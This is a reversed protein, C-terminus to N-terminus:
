FLKGPNLISRADLAQKIRRMASIEEASRSLGLWERKLTGIGHEASIAGGAKGVEAYFVQELRHILTDTLDPAHLVAHINGDGLHGFFLIRAAPHEAHVAETTTVVFSAIRPLPLSIDLNVLGPLASDLRHGERLEWFRRADELSQAPLADVLLEAEFAEELFPELAGEAELLVCLPPSADFFRRGELQSCLSVYDPWMAEFACLRLSKRALHLLEPAMEPSPLACLATEVTRPAPHLKLVARTVIGLTGESGIMLGRLDLGTNDKVATNLHSLVTGDALVMELGLVNERTTGHRVVRLGGANTAIVGGVQCSGRAGLDIPLVMGEAEAAGQAAQLVTGARLQMTGSVADVAEIGAFRELSLAIDGARPNAGGALGTMGGQPVVAQGHANCLAMAASIEEVSSPRLLAAPRSRGTGSADSIASAPVDEGVHCGKPGLLAALEALLTM